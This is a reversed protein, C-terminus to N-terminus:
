SNILTFYCNTLSEADDVKPLHREVAELVGNIALDVYEVVEKATYTVEATAEAEDDDDAELAEADDLTDVIVGRETFVDQAIKAYVEGFTHALEKVGEGELITDISELVLETQGQVDAVDERIAELQTTM